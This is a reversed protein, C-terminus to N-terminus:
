SGDGLWMKHKCAAINFRALVDLDKFELHMTGKKFYKARFFYTDFWEGYGVERKNGSLVEAQIKHFEIGELLCLAKEIDAIDRDREYTLGPYKWWNNVSNPLICKKAVRWAKNTKWGEFYVRNEDHYRTLLDFANEISLGLIDKWSALLMLELNAINSETFAMYGNADALDNLREKVQQTVLDTIRTKRFLREWASKRVADVFSEFPLSSVENIIEPKALLGEAYFFMEARKANVEAALQKIKNYRHTLSAYINTVEIQNNKLDDVAYVRENDQPQFSFDFQRRGEVKPVSVLMVRVDTKREANTFCPGLNEFTAARQELMYLLNQRTKSYPNNITEANLLCRVEAYPAIELARILHEAGRDFPPNMLVLDYQREPVFSLFDTHVLPYCKDVLIAQLEPEIEITHFNECLKRKKDRQYQQHDVGHIKYYVADIIDGKGASPELIWQKNYANLKLGSLMKDIVAKPTPFFNSNIM